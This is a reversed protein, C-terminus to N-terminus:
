MVPWTKTTSPPMTIHAGGNPAPGADPGAGRPGGGGPEPDPEPALPTRRGAPRFHQGSPWNRREMREGPRTDKPRENEGRGVVM